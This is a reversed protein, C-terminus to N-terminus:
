SGGEDRGAVVVPASEVLLDRGVRRFDLHELRVARSLDDGPLGDLLPVSMRGGLLLPALFISVRNVVGAALASAFVAAGGELLVRTVQRRGLERMVRGLDLGRGARDLPSRVVEAGAATLAAERERSADPATFLLVPGREIGRIMKSDAPLRLRRDLVVRTTKKWDWARGGSPPRATLDPDDALATGVGVMVADSGLRWRHVLRRSAECSIWKSRGGAAALKGDLTVAAKLQVFPLGSTIHYLFAQNLKEAQDALLGSGVEIGAHRLLEFGTGSVEPNPDAIAAAVRSVGASIVAATCPPTRGYHSCPELNVYLTAGRAKDGAARLAEVEAHPRGAGHHYGEGVVQGGSVVVCGVMPNPSTRGWGRRALSLVRRMHQRDASNWGDQVAV